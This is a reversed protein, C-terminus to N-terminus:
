IRTVRQWTNEFDRIREDPRARAGLVENFRGNKKENHTSLFLSFNKEFLFFTKKKKKKKEQQCRSFFFSNLTSQLRPRRDFRRAM